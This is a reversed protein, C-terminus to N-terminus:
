MLHKFKYEKITNEIVSIEEKSLKFYEYLQLNTWERDFSVIPIWKLTTPNMNQTNKRLSLFFNCFDTNMYSVLSKAEEESNVFLSMYTNSCVENIGGIIKNGFCKQNRNAFPTFVKWGDYVANKSIRDKEIWRILGKQQSVYCKMSDDIKIKSLKNSDFNMYYSNSKTITSLNDYKSIKKIINEFKPDISIDFISLNRKEGNFEVLGEYDPDILFYLIGGMIFVNEFVDISNEFHKILKLDKRNFMMKRFSDMGIAKGLWRSPIIMLLINTIQLSKDVFLNYIPKSRNHKGKFEEQYPPNGLILDFKEVGWVNKMHYDFEEKLFSGTYVNMLYEDFPDILYIWLFMNMPQLECAYIMKEVIWRFREEENPIIDKLGFMFRYISMLLFNGNGNAPDLVKANLNNWFDEPITQVMEKVLEMPTLVEGFKKTDTEAIKVFDKFKYIAWKLYEMKPLEKRKDEIEKFIMRDAGLMMFIAKRVERKPLSNIYDREEETFKNLMMQQVVNEFYNKDGKSEEYHQQSYTVGTSVATIEDFVMTVNDLM